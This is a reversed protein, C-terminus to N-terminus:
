DFSKRISQRLPALAETWRILENLLSHASQTNLENPEFKGDKLQQYVNPLAIGEPIPIIKLTTLQLKLAQASRLGGSVGGYSVIGAPAYQWEWFLYDLANVLSPPPCYNYEPTVFVFADARRVNASWKKTHDKTYQRRVPHNPEDLVPLDFDALDILEADFKGDKIALEHFWHAMAPGIRSPRTSAIVTHLKPM